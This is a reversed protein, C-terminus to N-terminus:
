DRRRTPQVAQPLAWSSRSPSRPRFTKRPLASRWPPATALALACHLLTRKKM